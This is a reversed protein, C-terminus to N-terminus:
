FITALSVGYQQSSGTGPVLPNVPTAGNWASGSQKTYSVQVLMNQQLKYNVSFLM